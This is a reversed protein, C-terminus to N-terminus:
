SPSSRGAILWGKERGKYLFLGLIFLFLTIAGMYMPGATFPQPGWYLPLGKAIERLGTQGSRRLLRITESKDPDVAQASSGGNFNPIMLNPLEEWGYSWATAYDLDLGGGKADGDRTLESGGRMTHPTYKALPLLKNVNTAIGAGGLVLLLASATFFRGLRKGRLADVFEFVAYLLVLVALYYTIQQHNAKIQLSLALGFLAAGLIMNALARSKAETSRYTQVLAALVWPFFAIAQMKTNHGVQIIQFNYSCFAVAVAGGIALPWSIGLSLMLLFAGLLAIFLYTAPRRGTLLWDYLKQTYDGGNQTSIATTPMGGFMSDTWYTPDDPHEANWQSMEHSMGIFGSIDSQNVIKGQLVEPVFGYSLALFLVIAGLAIGVNKLLKKDM